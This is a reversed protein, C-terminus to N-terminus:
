GPHSIRERNALNQAISRGVWYGVIDWEKDYQLLHNGRQPLDENQDLLLGGVNDLDEDEFLCLEFQELNVSEKTNSAFHGILDRNNPCLFVPARIGSFSFSSQQVIEDGDDTELPWVRVSDAADVSIVRGDSTSQM